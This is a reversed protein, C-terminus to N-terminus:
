RCQLIYSSATEAFALNPLNPNNKYFEVAIYEGLEGTINKTRIIKRKKLEKICNSYLAILNNNDIKQIEM